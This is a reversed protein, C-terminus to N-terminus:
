AETSTVGAIPSRVTTYSLNLQASELAAEQVALAAKALEFASLADDRQQESVAGTEFLQRVRTWDREASRFEARAREAQAQAQRVAVQYPQPDIQFLEAGEDVLPGEQYSRRVVLGGVRPRVEVSGPSEVRGAYTQDWVAQSMQVQVVEVPTPRNQAGGGQATSGPAEDNGCGALVLLGMGVIGALGFKLNQNFSVNM